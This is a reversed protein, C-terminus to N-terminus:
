KTQLFEILPLIDGKDATVLAQIYRKRNESVEVLSGQGWNFRSQGIEKMLVDAMLRSHRGNGNSFPHIFVLRHHFRAGIEDPPYTRNEIWYRADDFLLKLQTCIQWPPIGINRETLRFRGAWIWVDKFMEKHLRKVFSETLIDKHKRSFLWREAKLIGNLEVANLEKRFVIWTPILGEKEEESLPTSSKDTEFLNDM